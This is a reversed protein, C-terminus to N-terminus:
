LTLIEIQGDFLAVTNEYHASPKLDRTKVTWGDAMFDVEYTGLTIMPEIALTMGNSLRVGRGKTGYNAVEPDEHMKRGIGHGVLERVVGFGHMEAHQQIAFGIDGLRNGVKFQEVGKFFCEKTIEVLKRKEESVKGVMVTRAADGHFGEIYAGVDFSVIQGEEIIRKKSPIGHVVEEDISICVSAPYNYLGLFSPTAGQSRIYKEAIDNLELTSIGPKVKEELLKLTDGTIKGAKRMKAIESETKLIIM